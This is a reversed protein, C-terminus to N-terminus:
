INAIIGSNYIQCNIEKDIEEITNCLYGCVGNETDFHGATLVYLGLDAADLIKNYSCEGTVLADAGLKMAVSVADGGGGGLVAVKKIMAGEVRPYAVGSASLHKKVHKAFDDLSMEKELEGIRGMPLGDDLVYRCVGVLGLSEALWDNVAVCDLRTHFSMVTIDNKILEKLRAGVAGEFDLRSIPKFILPHHSVIADYGNKVAYDITELTVDLSVLVKEVQKNKDFCYMLGDNDWECSLEKPIKKSLELYLEGITM